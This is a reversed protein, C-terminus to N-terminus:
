RRSESAAFSVSSFGVVRECASFGVASSAWSSCSSSSSGVGVVVGEVGGLGLGTCASMTGRVWAGSGEFILSGLGTSLTRCM